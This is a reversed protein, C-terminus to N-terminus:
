KMMDGSDKAGLRSRDYCAAKGREEQSIYTKM